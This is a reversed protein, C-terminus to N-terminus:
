GFNKLASSDSSPGILIFPPFVYYNELRSISQIFVDVGSTGPVPHPSFFTLSWGSSDKMMNSPIAMMDHTHPGITSNVLPWIRPSLSCDSDSYIKSPEDALNSESPVYSLSLSINLKLTLSFLDKIKESLALSRGGGNEWFNTLKTNDVAAKVRGNYIEDAFTLLTKFLARAEKIAIDEVPFEEDAFWYDRTKKSGDPLHLIEGWGSNSADSFIQVVFHKEDKWPLYGNWSDLFRWYKLEEELGQSM